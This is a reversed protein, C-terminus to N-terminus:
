NGIKMIEAESRRQWGKLGYAMGILGVGSGALTFGNNTGTKHVTEFILLGAGILTLVIGTIVGMFVVVRGLSMDGYDDEFMGIKAPVSDGM